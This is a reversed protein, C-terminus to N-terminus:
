QNEGIKVMKMKKRWATVRWAYHPACRAVRAALLRCLCARPLLAARARQARVATAMKAATRANGVAASAGGGAARVLTAAVSRGGIKALSENKSIGGEIM